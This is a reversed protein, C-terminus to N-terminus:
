VKNAALAEYARFFYAYFEAKDEFKFLSKARTLENAKERSFHFLQPWHIQFWLEFARMKPPKEGSLERYKVISALMFGTPIEPHFDLVDNADNDAHKFFNQPKRFAEQVFKIKDPRILDSAQLDSIMPTGNCAKNLDSLIETAACALTHISVPDGGDFYLSIATELQRRAAELKGIKIRGKEFDQTSKMRNVKDSKFHPRFSKAEARRTEGVRM